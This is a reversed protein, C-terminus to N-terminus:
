KMEDMSLIAAINGYDKGALSAAIGRIRDWLGCHVCVDATLRFITDRLYVPLRGAAEESIPNRYGSGAAEMRFLKEYLEDKFGDDPVTHQKALLLAKDLYALATEWAAAQMCCLSLNVYVAPSPQQKELSSFLRYAQAYSGSNYLGIGASFVAARNETGPGPSAGLLSM